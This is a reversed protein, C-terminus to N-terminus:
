HRRTHHAAEKATRKRHDAHASASIVGNCFQTPTSSPASPDPLHPFPVPRTAIDDLESDCSNYTTRDIIWDFLILRIWDFGIGSAGGGVRETLVV